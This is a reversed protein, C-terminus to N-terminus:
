ERRCTPMSAASASPSREGALTGVANGPTAQRQAMAVTQPYRPQQRGHVNHIRERSQFAAARGYRYKPRWKFPGRPPPPVQHGVPHDLKRSPPRDAGPCVVLALWGVKM